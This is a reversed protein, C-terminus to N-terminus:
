CPPLLEQQKELVQYLEKTLFVCKGPVDVLAISVEGVDSSESASLHRALERLASGTFSPSNDHSRSIKTRQRSVLTRVTKKVAREIRRLRLQEHQKEAPMTSWCWARHIRIEGSRLAQLIEPPANSTLQRVKAVNGVSVDAAEAVQKRVDVKEAETLKSSGKNKGGDRQNSEAKGKLCAEIESALLIRCFDNLGNSRRHRELLMRLGEEETLQCEICLVTKRDLTRALEWRAYGDIIIRDQTIVIPDRFASAGVSALASIQQTSPALQHRSYSPHPRLEDVRRTALQGDIENSIQGIANEM